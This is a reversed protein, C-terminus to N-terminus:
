GLPMSVLARPYLSHFPEIVDDVNQVRGDIVLGGDTRVPSEPAALREWLEDRRLREASSEEHRAVGGVGVDDLRQSTKSGEPRVEIRRRGARNEFAHRGAAPRRHRSLGDVEDGFPDVVPARVILHGGGREVTEQHYAGNCRRRHTQKSGVREVAEEPFEVLEKREFEIGSVSAATPANM